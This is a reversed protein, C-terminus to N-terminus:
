LAGGALCSRCPERGPAGPRALAAAAASNWTGLLGDAPLRGLPSRRGFDSCCPFLGGDAHLALRTLPEACFGQGAGAPAQGAPRFDTERGGLINQYRQFSLYDARPGFIEEFARQQGQNLSMEVFSIRLLPTPSNLERRLRLFDDINKLLIRWDGGPRVRAYTGAGAADVSIMLRTLGARILRRSMEGSLLRGNSILSIDLVGAERAEAVWQDLDDILLPEGTLGLRLSPLGFARGEALAKRYLARDLFRGKEFGPFIHGSQGAPCMPCRFNCATTVDVDLHLPAAPRRDGEAEAWRRRYEAFPAGLLGSLVAQPDRPALLRSRIFPQSM